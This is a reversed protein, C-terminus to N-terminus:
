HTPVPAPNAGPLSDLKATIRQADAPEPKLNLARRWQFEAERLRGAAQLADGLHGNIVPDEPMLEVARELQLLAGPVDGQRLLLWGLSDVIAGDNPRQPLAKELMARARDLNEGRETWSYALYNLVSPQDPSLQLATEFDAEADPWHGARELAIGREYFLLWSSRAPVGLRGIAGSYAAAADEFREQRRLMDGKLALPEPRDPYQRALADALAAAEDKRDTQELLTARRLDAMAALPDSATIPALTALAAAPQNGADEIEALLIRAATFDPRMNLALQLLIQSSDSSQQQLSAALALYAEAIGDAPNRVAPTAANAELAQRAIAIDSNAATLQRIANQAEALNGQRAQWSALIASLRLNPGGYERSAIAYFRAAEEAHGGVDAILGAHLAYVGRFRNSEVLPALTALAADTRGQGQQSWAVLLPRLVLTLPQQQSLASFGTEARDWNGAIAERDALVLQAIPNDPLSGALRAADPRGALTASLFAESAIEPVTPDATLVQELKGAAFDFDGHQAGFRGTLYAGFAGQAERVSVPDGSDLGLDGAGCTALSVILLAVRGPRLM